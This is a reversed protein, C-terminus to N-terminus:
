RIEKYNKAIYTILGDSLTYINDKNEYANINGNYENAFRTFYRMRSAGTLGPIGIYLGEIEWNGIKNTRNSELFLLLARAFRTIADTKKQRFLPMEQINQTQM